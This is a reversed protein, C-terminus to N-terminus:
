DPKDDGGALDGLGHRRLKSYLSQRSLGLMEAASARNDDTLELAAEICLEEILDATERVIERLPMHGVLAIMDDAAKLPPKGAPSPSDIQTRLLFCCAGTRDLRAVSVSVDTSVGHRNRVSTVFRRIAGGEELRSTLVQLDVGHRGLFRALPEGRAQEVTALGTLDLFSENGDVIRMAADTAVLAEPLRRLAEWDAGFSSPAPHPARDAAGFRLLVHPGASSRILWGAAMVSGETGRLPLRPWAAHGVARATAFGDRVERASDDDFLTELETGVLRRAGRRLLDEAVPNADLIRRSSADAIVVADTANQFLVRFQIETARHLAYDREVALNAEVLQQQLRAIDRLDRGLAALPGGPALRVMAYRVPLDDDGLTHNIEQRVSRGDVNDLMTRVKGRSEVTVTDMLPQDLWASGVERALHEDEIAMDRVIGHEDLILM